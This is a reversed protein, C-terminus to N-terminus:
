EGKEFLGRAARWYIDFQDAAEKAEAIDRRGTCIYKPEAEGFEQVKVWTYIIWWHRRMESILIPRAPIDLNLEAM